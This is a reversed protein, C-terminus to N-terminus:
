GNDFSQQKESYEGFPSWIHNYFQAWGEPRGHIKRGSRNRGFGAAALGIQSFKKIKPENKLPINM